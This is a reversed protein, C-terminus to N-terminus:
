ALQKLVAGTVERTSSSGGLDATRVKGEALV